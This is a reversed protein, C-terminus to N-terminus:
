RRTRSLRCLHNNATALTSAAHEVGTPSCARHMSCYLSCSKPFPQWHRRIRKALMLRGHPPAIPVEGTLTCSAAPAPGSRLPGGLLCARVHLVGHPVGPLHDRTVSWGPADRRAPDPNRAVRHVRDAPSPSPRSGRVCVLWRRLPLGHLLVDDRYLRQRKTRLM